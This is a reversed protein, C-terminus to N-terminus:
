HAFRYFPSLRIKAGIPHEVIHRVIRKTKKFRLGIRDFVKDAKERVQRRM